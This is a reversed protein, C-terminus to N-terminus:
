RCIHKSLLSPSRSTDSFRYVAGGPGVAIAEQFGLGMAGIRTVRASAPQAWGEVVGVANAAFVNNGFWLRGEEDFHCGSLTKPSAVKLIREPDLALRGDDARILCILRGSAKAAAFGACEGAAPARRLLCLGEYNQACNSDKSSQCLWESERPAVPYSKRVLSLEEDKRIWERMWGSSTIGYLRPGMASLGELDDSAGRDLPLKGRRRVEGSEPDLQVYAGQRGSDGVVLISGDDLLTAGSAEPLDVSLAFSQRECHIDEASAAPKEDRTSEPLDREGAEPASTPTATPAPASENSESPKRCGASLALALVLASRPSVLM